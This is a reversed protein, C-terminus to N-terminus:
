CAEGSGLFVGGHLANVFEVKLGVVFEDHEIGGGGGVGEVEEVGGAAEEVGEVGGGELPEEFGTAEAEVEEVEAGAVHELHEGFESAAAKQGFEGLEELVEAAHPVAKLLTGGACALDESAGVDGKIDDCAGVDDGEVFGEEEMTAEGVLGDGDAAEDDVANVLAEDGVGDEGCGDGFDFAAEGGGEVEGGGWGRVEVEGGEGGLELRVGSLKVDEGVLVLVGEVAEVELEGAGAGDVGDGEEGGIDVAQVAEFADALGEEAEGSGGEIVEGRATDLGRRQASVSYIFCILWSNTVGFASSM